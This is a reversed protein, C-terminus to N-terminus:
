ATTRHLRARRIRRPADGTLAFAQCRCGGFDREASRVRGARSRCGRRAASCTSSRRRRGRTASRRRTPRDTRGPGAAHERSPMAPHRGGAHRRPLPTGLRGICAKPRGRHYDPLVFVIELSEDLRRRARSAVDRARDIQEATPLLATRNVLAWGLYQANALELRDAGLAVALAVFADVRDINGRHLVVNLTLPLGLEKVGAPWTSSGRPSTPAPSACRRRTSSTRYRSSSPTSAPPVSGRLASASLPVGSTILNTYLGLTRAHECSRRSIPGSSPEGGTLHVQVVGIAEAEALVRAWTSADL